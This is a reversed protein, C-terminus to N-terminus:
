GFDSVPRTGSAIDRLIREINDWNPLGQGQETRRLGPLRACAARLIGKAAFARRAGLNARLSAAAHLVLAALGVTHPAAQSTGSM